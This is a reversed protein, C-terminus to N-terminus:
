LVYRCHLSDPHKVVWPVVIIEMSHKLDVHVYMIRSEQCVSVIRDVRSFAQSHLYPKHIIVQIEDEFAFRQRKLDELERQLKERTLADTKREEQLSGLEADFKRQKKELLTNRSTQEELLLKTDNNEGQAKQTKRKWSAVCQRQEDVEEYADNLQFCFFFNM